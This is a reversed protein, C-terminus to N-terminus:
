VSLTVFNEVKPKKEDFLVPVGQADRERALAKKFETDFDCHCRM